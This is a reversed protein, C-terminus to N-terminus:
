DLSIASITDPDTPLDLLVIHKGEGEEIFITKEQKPTEVQETTTLQPVDNMEDVNTIVTEPPTSIEDPNNDLLDLIEQPLEFSDETPKEQTPLLMPNDDLTILTEQPPTLMPDDDSTILTEQPLSLEDSEEDITNLANQTITLNDPPVKIDDHISDVTQEDVGETAIEYFNIEDNDQPKDDKEEDLDIYDDLLPTNDGIHTVKKPKSGFSSFLAANIANSVIENAVQQNPEVTESDPTTLLPTKEDDKMDLNTEEVTNSVIENAVQQNPEVTESDPTTLLPTKEDDKTNLSTEEINEDLDDIYTVQTTGEMPNSSSPEVTKMQLVDSVNQYLPNQVKLKAATERAEKPMEKRASDEEDFISTRGFPVIHEDIPKKQKRKQRIKRIGIVM